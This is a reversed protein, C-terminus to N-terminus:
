NENKSISIKKSNYRFSKMQQLVKNLIIMGSSKKKRELPKEQRIQPLPSTSPPLVSPQLSPLRLDLNKVQEYKETETNAVTAEFLTSSSVGITITSKKNNLYSSHSKLPGIIILCAPAFPGV